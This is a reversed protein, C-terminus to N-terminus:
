CRRRNAVGFMGLPGSLYTTRLGKVVSTMGVPICTSASSPRGPLILWLAACTGEKAVAKAAAEVVCVPEAVGAAVATSASSDVGALLSEMLLSKDLVMAPLGGSQKDTGEAALNLVQLESHRMTNDELSGNCLSYMRASVTCEGCLLPHCGFRLRQASGCSSAEATRQGGEISLSASVKHQMGKSLQKLCLSLQLHGM